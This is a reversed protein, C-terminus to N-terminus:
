TRPRSSLCFKYIASRLEKEGMKDLTNIHNMVRDMAEYYGLNYDSNRKM